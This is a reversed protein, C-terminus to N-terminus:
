SANGMALAFVAFLVPIRMAISQRRIFIRTEWAFWYM